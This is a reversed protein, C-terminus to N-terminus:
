DVASQDWRDFERQPPGHAAAQVPADTPLGLHDLITRAVTPTPWSAMVRM